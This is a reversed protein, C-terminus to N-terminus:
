RIAPGGSRTHIAAGGSRIRIAMGNSLRTIPASAPPGVVLNVIEDPEVVPKWVEFDYNPDRQYSVGDIDQTTM